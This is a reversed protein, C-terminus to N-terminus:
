ETYAILVMNKVWTQANNCTSIDLLFIVYFNKLLIFGTTYNSMQGFETRKQNGYNTSTYSFKICFAVLHKKKYLEKVHYLSM